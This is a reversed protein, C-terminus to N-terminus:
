PEAVPAFRSVEAESLHEQKNHVQILYGRLRSYKKEMILETAAWNHIFPRGLPRRV